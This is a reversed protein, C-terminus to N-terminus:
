RGKSPISANAAAELAKKEKEAAEKAEKAKEEKEEKEKDGEAKVAVLELEKAILEKEVVRIKREDRKRERAEVSKMAQALNLEDRLREAEVEKEGKKLNGLTQNKKRLAEIKVKEERIKRDNKQSIREQERTGKGISTM